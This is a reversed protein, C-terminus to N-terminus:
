TRERRDSESAPAVRVASSSAPFPRDTNALLLGGSAAASFAARCTPAAAGFREKAAGHALEIAEILAALPAGAPPARPPVAGLEVALACLGARRAAALNRARRLWGRATAEPVGARAAAPRHGRGMELAALISKALDIRRAYLFSPLLAHTRGCAGCIARVIRLLWTEERRRAWRRYSGWRSLEGGCAPCRTGAPLDPGVGEELTSEVESEPVGVILL